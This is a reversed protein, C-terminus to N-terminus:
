GRLDDFLFLHLVKHFEVRTEDFSAEVGTDRIEGTFRQRPFFRRARGVTHVLKHFVAFSYASPEGLLVCTPRALIVALALAHAPVSRPEGGELEFALDIINPVRRVRVRGEKECAKWVQIVKARKM